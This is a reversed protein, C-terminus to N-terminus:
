LIFINYVYISLNKKKLTLNEQKKCKVGFYM